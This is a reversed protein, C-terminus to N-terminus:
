IRIKELDKTFGLISHSIKQQLAVALEPYENLVRHMTSRTIKMVECDERVIATGVRKTASILAVEGILSGSTFNALSEQSDQSFSILEVEGSIVVYGGDTHQGERFLEHGKNFSMKQSGFALLRLHEAGFDSFMQVKSLLEIDKELSM